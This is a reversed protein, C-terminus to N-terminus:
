GFFTSWLHHGFVLSPYVEIERDLSAAGTQASKLASQADHFAKRAASQVERSAELKAKAAELGEEAVKKAETRRQHEAPATVENQAKLAEAYKHQLAAQARILATEAQDVIKKEHSKRGSQSGPLLMHWAVILSDKLEPPLAGSDILENVVGLVPENGRSKKLNGRAGGSSTRKTAM